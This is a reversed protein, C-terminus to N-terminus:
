ENNEKIGEIINEFKLRRSAKILVVDGSSLTKRMESVLDQKNEFIKAYGAGRKIYKSYQGCLFVRNIKLKKAFRGIKRHIKKSYRGIELIDGIIANSRKKKLKSINSLLILSSKLSEYSSNYCDNIITVGKIELYEERMRDQKFSLLGNQIESDTLGYLKGVRYAIEANHINHLCFSYIKMENEENDGNKILFKIGGDFFSYRAKRAGEDVFIAKIKGLKKRNIRKDNPLIAFKPHYNLIELKAKLINKKSGLLEIHSTKANTIVALEPKSFRSLKDIEGLARMGMEVVCFDENKINLLTKAVGIENNENEKTGIVSFKQSLVSIIMNKVTTKGVSGTVGIIKASGKNASALELLATKTDGVTICPKKADKRETIVIGAGNKYAENSFDNGDFKEGKIGVFCTNEDMNEKSSLSIKDILVDEGMLKGSVIKAIESARRPKISIM